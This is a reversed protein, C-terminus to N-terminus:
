PEPLTALILFASGYPGGIGSVYSLTMMGNQLIHSLLSKSVSIYKEHLKATFYHFSFSFIAAITSHTCEL